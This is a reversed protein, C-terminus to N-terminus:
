TQTPKKGVIGEFEEKEISEKELLVQVVKEVAERHARFAQRATEQGDVVLQRIAEDIKQATADAYDREEAMDRGLFVMEEGRGYTRPGLADVMGYKKVMAKAVATAKKLDDSAGTTVDGFVEAEAVRGGLMMAIDALFDNRSEMRSDDQPLKMTYGAARGRSIISIKHVEDSSGVFHGVIAHGAEHYATIRKEKESIVRNKRAPGIMVKEIAERVHADTVVTENARATLIAAENLINALDAGSFGATRKAIIGLNVDPALPKNAAHIRLIAEREKLDPIDIMVQRDFRGPRLLAPDLVDPRNTAAMVIIGSNTEFGDMEVLIQNLTQEREDHGGGLGAGRQRGVADIEDIFVICPAEKKAKSFLDRVRSAGVGVFMEVFESGSMHFFPVQAEGAVARAILTKGTGPRGMMLVGKPIKAGVADFKKPNKLFEVIEQLEQKAEHAGAVEAFTTKSQKSARHDKPQAQGFGMAKGQAGQMQRILFWAMGGLLVALILSPVLRWALERGNQSAIVVQTNALVEPSVKFDTLLESFSQQTEKATFLTEEGVTYTIREPSVEVRTVTGTQLTSIFQTLPVEQKPATITTSSLWAGVLLVVLIPWLFSRHKSPKASAM